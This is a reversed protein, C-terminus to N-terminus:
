KARCAEAYEAQREMLKAAKTGFEYCGAELEYDNPVIMYAEAHPWDTQLHVGKDSFRHIIWNKGDCKVAANQPFQDAKM